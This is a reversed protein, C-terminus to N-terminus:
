PSPPKRDGSSASGASRGNSIITPGEDEFMFWDEDDEEGDVSQKTSAKSPSPGKAKGKGGGKPKPAAVGSVSKEVQIGRALARSFNAATVSMKRSQDYIASPLFTRSPRLHALTGSYTLALDDVVRRIQQAFLTEALPPKNHSPKKVGAFRYSSPAVPQRPTFSAYFDPALQASAFM